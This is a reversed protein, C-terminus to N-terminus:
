RVAIAPCCLRATFNQVCTWTKGSDPNYCTLLGGGYLGYSAPNGTRYGARCTSAAQDMAGGRLIRRNSANSAAGKPNTVSEGATFGGEWDLCWEYALGLMDYLGWANPRKLGVEPFAQSYGNKTADGHLAGWNAYYWAIADLNECEKADSLDEGTYLATATKARCAFEWQAETPLDFPIGTYARIKYLRCTENTIEHGGAPWSKEAAAGGRWGSYNARSPLCSTTLTSGSMFSMQADTVMFIGMYYDETLTVYRLASAGGTEGTPAGMRWTVNAAPVKRLIMKRRKYVKNTVAGPIQEQAEYYNVDVDARTSALNVVM